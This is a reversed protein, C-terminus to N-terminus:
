LMESLHHYDGDEIHESVIEAANGIGGEKEIPVAAKYWAIPFRENGGFWHKLYIDKAELTFRVITGASEGFRNEVSECRDKPV